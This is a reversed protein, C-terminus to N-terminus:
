LATETNIYEESIIRNNEDVTVYSTPYVQNFRPDSDYMLKALEDSISYLSDDGYLFTIWSSKQTREAEAMCRALCAGKFLPIPHCLDVCRFPVRGRLLEPVLEYIWRLRARTCTSWREGEPCRMIDGLLGSATMAVIAMVFTIALDVWLNM